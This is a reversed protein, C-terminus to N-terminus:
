RVDSGEEPAAGLAGLTDSGDGLLAAYATAARLWSRWRDITTRALAREFDLLELLSLDGARYAALASQREEEAAVLLAADYSALRTRAADYELRVAALRGRSAAM